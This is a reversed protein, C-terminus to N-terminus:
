GTRGERLLARIWESTAAQDVRKGHSDEDAPTAGHQLLLRIIGAQQQRAAESGSGSKGATQVALHLPTSGTKNPQLPNAGAELLARRWCRGCQRRPDRESRATCRRWARVTGHTPIRASRCSTVLSTPRPSRIGIIRMPPMIFRNRGGAIGPASM